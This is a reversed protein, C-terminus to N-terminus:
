HYIQRGSFCLPRYGNEGIFFSVTYSYDKLPHFRAFKEFEIIFQYGLDSLYVPSSNRQEKIFKEVYRKTSYYNKLTRPKLVRQMNENHYDILELLTKTNEDMGLFKRRLIEATIISGNLVLEKYDESVKGRIRELYFNLNKSEPKTGKAMGRAENWLSAEIWQKLSLEKRVGDVTIRMYIPIKGAQTKNRKGVFAISFTKHTTNMMLIKLPKKFQKLDM